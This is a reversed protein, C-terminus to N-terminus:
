ANGRLVEKNIVVDEDLRNEFCALISDACSLGMRRFSQETAAASHPTLVVNPLGLLPNDARAPEEWFVDLGAAALHGSALAAALPKEEVLTGRATNILVGGPKMAAIFEGNVFGRTDKNSPLHITVVDAAALAAHLDKVPTFGAGKITNQPVFPDRVQVNMGFAACLRAVRGGIRGFGMVLVTRGALDFTQPVPPNIWELKRVKADYAATGRAINLMLMMAHEAVSVANADPTVTLPIGRETLAEVDVADYGVGHRAVIRLNPAHQLFDRDIRTARVIIADAKPMARAITEANVPDLVELTVGPANRLKALAEEHVSRLCIVHPM